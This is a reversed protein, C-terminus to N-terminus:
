GKPRPNGNRPKRGPSSGGRKKKPASAKQETRPAEGTFFTEGGAKLPPKEEPIGAKERVPEAPIAGAEPTGAPPTEKRAPLEAMKEPEKPKDPEKSKGPEKPKDPKPPKRPPDRGNTQDLVLPWVDEALRPILHTQGVAGMRVITAKAADLAARMAGVDGVLTVTNVGGGVFYSSKLTVSAAKIASDVAEILSARGESEIIGLAHNEGAKL